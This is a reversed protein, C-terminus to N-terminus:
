KNQLINKIAARYRAVMPNYVAQADKYPSCVLTPSPLHATMDKFTTSERILAFKAQYASGLAASNSVEQTYVPVNFVDALVQLICHNKSAGGTALIRTNNGAIFGLDEAHARRAVFQGEILARVEVENSAFRSVHVGAKNFRYDGVVFPVIEQVDYYLGFNGFNGRPTSDLLESFIQWSGETCKENIRNRPISGNKFCLLGMFTDPTLPSCLIHGEGLTQPKKLDLILTDSTGLSVVLDGEAMCMGILSGPNDGTFAVVRCDPSFGYREVFYDSVPGLVSYSPVPEGLKEALDPACSKLCEQSWEKTHINLLNMGSADSYDLAAYKGLFLSAVCSSVLSIRETSHYTSPRTDFLKAIQPGTFREYARSGTLEALALPGGVADELRRCQETTSSDMWVPSQTVSFCTALQEHLFRDPNLSELKSLAGKSWYVSGHQQAAGSLSAIQSFDVGAVRLRDLLMDLAKVWM